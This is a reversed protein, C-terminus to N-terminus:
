RTASPRMACPTRKTQLNEPQSKQTFLPVLAVFRTLDALSIVDVLRHGKAVLFRRQHLTGNLRFLDTIKMDPAIVTEKTLDVFVDDVKTRSWHERDISSLVMRDIKGLLVGNEVM